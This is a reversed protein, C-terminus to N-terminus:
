SGVTVNVNFLFDFDRVEANAYTARAKIKIVGESTFTVLSTSTNLTTSTGSITATGQELTWVVSSVTTLSKVADSDFDAVYLFAEGKNPSEVYNYKTNDHQSYFHRSWWCDSSNGSGLPMNEPLRQNTPQKSNVYLTTNAKKQQSYFTPVFDRTQIFPAVAEALNFILGRKAWPFEKLEDNISAPIQPTVYQGNGRMTELMSILQEFCESQLSPDIALVNSFENCLKLSSNVITKATTM